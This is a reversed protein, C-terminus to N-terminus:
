KDMSELVVIRGIQLQVDSAGTIRFTLPIFRQTSNPPVILRYRYWQQRDVSVRDVVRGNLLIEVTSGAARADGLRLPVDVLKAATPVFITATDDAVRYRTGDEAIRWESLGYGVHELDARRVAAMARLPISAAVLLALVAVTRRTRATVVEQSGPGAAVGAVIFFAFAVEPTLLPHGLLATILFAGLGCAFAEALPDSTDSRIVHRVSRVIELGFWICFAAGVLGLEAFVQLVNNHANEHFYYRGTPLDRLPGASEAYFQGIGVGFVPHERLLRFSVLAMDRRVELAVSTGPGALRNPLLLLAVSALVGLGLLGFRRRSRSAEPSASRSVVAWIGAVLVAALLAARSSTLWLAAGIMAAIAVWFGRRAGRHSIAVGVPVFLMMAFYSGAANVDSYHINIRYAYAAQLLSHWPSESRAAIQFLRMVNLAAAAAAGVAFMRAVAPFRRPEAALIAVGGAFLALGELFWIAPQMGELMVSDSLYHGSLLLRVARGFEEPGLRAHIEPLRAAYSAIVVIALLIVPYLVRARPAGRFACRAATGAIFSVVLLETLSFRAHLVGTLVAGLPLFAAIVLLGAAPRVCTLASCSLAFAAIWGGAHAATAVALASVVICPLRFLYRAATVV